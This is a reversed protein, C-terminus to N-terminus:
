SAFYYGFTYLISYYTILRIFKESIIDNILVQKQLHHMITYKEYKSKIIVISECGGNYFYATFIEITHFPSKRLIASM